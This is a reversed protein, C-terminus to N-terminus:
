LIQSRSMCIGDSPKQFSQGWQKIASPLCQSVGAKTSSAGVPVAALSQPSLQWKGAEIGKTACAGSWLKCRYWDSVKTGKDESVCGGRCTGQSSPLLIGRSPEWGGPEIRGRGPGQGGSTGHAEKGWMRLSGLVTGSWWEMQRPSFWSKTM